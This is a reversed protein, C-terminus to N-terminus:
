GPAAFSIVGAGMGASVSCRSASAASVTNRVSPKFAYDRASKMRSASPFSQNRSILVSGPMVGVLKTGCSAATTPM